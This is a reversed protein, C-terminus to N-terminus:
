RIHWQNCSFSRVNKRNEEQFLEEECLTAIDQLEQKNHKKDFIKFYPINKDNNM